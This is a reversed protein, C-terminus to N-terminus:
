NGRGKIPIARSECSRELRTIAPAITQFFELDSARSMDTRCVSISPLSSTICTPQSLCATPITHLCDSVPQQNAHLTAYILTLSDEQATYLSSLDGAPAAHLSHSSPKQYQM